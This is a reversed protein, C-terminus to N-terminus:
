KREDIIDSVDVGAAKALREVIALTKLGEARASLVHGWMDDPTEPPVPRPNPEDGHLPLRSSLKADVARALDVLTLHTRDAEPRDGEDYRHVPWGALDPGRLQTQVDRAPDDAMVTSEQRLPKWQGYDAPTYVYNEDVQVGRFTPQENNQQWINVVGALDFDRRGAALERGDGCLWYWDALGRRHAERLTPAFGYVARGRWGLPSHQFGQLCEMVRSMQEANAPRFDVSMYVVANECDIAALQEACVEGRDRGVDYGGLCWNAAADEFNLVIAKGHRKYSDAESRSIVDPFRTEHWDRRRLYFIRGLYPSGELAAAPDAVDGLVSATDILKPLNPRFIAM